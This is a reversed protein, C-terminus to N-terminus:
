KPLRAEIEQVLGEHAMEALRARVSTINAGKKVQAKLSVDVKIFEFCKPDNPISKVTAGVMVTVETVEFDAAVVAVPAAMPPTPAETDVQLKKPRGRKPAEVVPPTPVPPASMERPAQPAPIPSFGEVPLAALEPKSKPADPPLVSPMRLSNNEGQIPPLDLLHNGQEQTIKGEKVMEMVQYLRRSPEQSLTEEVIRSPQPATPTADPISPTNMGLIPTPSPDAVPASKKFRDTLSSMFSFTGKDPCHTVFPCSKCKSRDPTVEESDTIQMVSKMRSLKSTIDGIGDALQQRNITTRVPESERKVTGFYVHQMELTEDCGEAEAAARYILMQTDKRLMSSTKGWKQIDSSTKWDVISKIAAGGVQRGIFDIKGRLKVGEIEFSEIWQEIQFVPYKKVIEDIIEKGARAEKGLADQGTKLYHEIQKHILDGMELSKTPAGKLGARVEFWSKRECGFPTTSDFTTIASASSSLLKGDPAVYKGVPQLVIM